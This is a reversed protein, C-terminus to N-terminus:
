SIDDKQFLDQVDQPACSASGSSDESFTEEINPEVKFGCATCFRSGQKLQTGCNTCFLPVTQPELAEPEEPVDIKMGCEPCFLAGEPLDTGCQTCRNIGKRKKIEEQYEAILEQSDKIRNICTGIQEDLTPDSTDAEATEMSCKSFFLRGLEEFYKSINNEEVSILRTFKAIGAAEKGKQITSQSFDSIGKGINDFFGM